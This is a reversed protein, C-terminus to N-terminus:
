IKGSDIMRQLKRYIKSILVALGRTISGATRSQSTNVGSPAPMLFDARTGDGKEQGVEGAPLVELM